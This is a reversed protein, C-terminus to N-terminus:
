RSRGTVGDIRVNARRDSLFGRLWRVLRRPVGKELMFILLRNRWVTDYAKSFDLLALVCRKAPQSQFGNSISKSLRLVHDECSRGARFGAQDDNWWGNEEALWSLRSAVMREMTKAVCSTLSVPRYSDIDSASKGKKILPIITAVRWSAPSKGSDWSENFISLLYERVIPGLAQLFRPEIGDGGPAGKPKMCKIAENLEALRVRGM